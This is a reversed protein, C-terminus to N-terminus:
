VMKVWFKLKESINHNGSIILVYQVPGDHSRFGEPLHFLDIGNWKTGVTEDHSKDLNILLSLCLTRNLLM